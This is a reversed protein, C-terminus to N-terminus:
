IRELALVHGILTKETKIKEEKKNLSLKEGQKFYFVCM